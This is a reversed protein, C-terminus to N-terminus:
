DFLFEIGFSNGVLMLLLVGAEGVSNDGFAVRPHAVFCHLKIAVLHHIKSDVLFVLAGNCLCLVGGFQVADGALDGIYGVFPFNFISSWEFHFVALEFDGFRFDFEEKLGGVSFFDLILFGTVMILVSAPKDFAVVEDLDFAVHGEFGIAM